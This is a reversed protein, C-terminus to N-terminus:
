PADTTKATDPKAEPQAPQENYHLGIAERMARVVDASLGKNGQQSAEKPAARRLFDLTEAADKASVEGTMVKELLDLTQARHSDGTVAPPERVAALPPLARDMLLKAAQVDGALALEYLKSLVPPLAARIMARLRQADSPNSKRLSRSM